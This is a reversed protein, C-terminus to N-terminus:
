SRRIAADDEHRSRQAAQRVGRERPRSRSGGQGAAGAPGQCGTRGAAPRRHRRRPRAPPARADQMDRLAGMAESGAMMSAAKRLLDHMHAATTAAPQLAQRSEALRSLETIMAAREPPAPRAEEAIKQDGGSTLHAATARFASGLGGIIAGGFAYVNIMLVLSAVGIVLYRMM